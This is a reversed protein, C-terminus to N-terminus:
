GIVRDVPITRLHAIPLDAALTVAIGIAIWVADRARFKGNRMMVDILTWEILAIPIFIAFYIPLSHIQHYTMRYSAVRVALGAALGIAFRMTGWMLGLQARKSQAPDLLRDGVTCWAIYGAYKVAFYIAVNLPLAHM